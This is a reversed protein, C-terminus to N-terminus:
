ADVELVSRQLGTVIRVRSASIAEQQRAFTALQSQLATTNRATAEALGTVPKPTACASLTAALSAAVVAISASPRVQTDRRRHPRPRPVPRGGFRAGGAQHWFRLIRHSSRDARRDHGGM